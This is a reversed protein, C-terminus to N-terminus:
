AFCNAFYTLKQILSSRHQEAPMDTNPLTKAVKKNSSYKKSNTPVHHVHTKKTVMVKEIFTKTLYRIRINKM